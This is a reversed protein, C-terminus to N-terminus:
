GVAIYLDDGELKIQYTRATLGETTLCKGDRVDYEWQHWPCEVITGTVMGKGLPGGQHLCADQMAYYQDGISFIAVELGDVEFVKQEGPLIDSKKCIKKFTTM